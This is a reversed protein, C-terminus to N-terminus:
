QMHWVRRLAINRLRHDLKSGVERQEAASSTGVRDVFNEVMKLNYSVIHLGEVRGSPQPLEAHHDHHDDEHHDDEFVTGHLHSNYRCCLACIWDGCLVRISAGTTGGKLGDFIAFDRWQDSRTESGGIFTICGGFGFGGDMTDVHLDAGSVCPSEGSHHGRVVVQHSPLTRATARPPVSPYQCVSVWDDCESCDARVGQSCVCWEEMDPYAVLLCEAVASNLESLVPEVSASREPPSRSFPICTPEGQLIMSERGVGPLIGNGLSVYIGSAPQVASSETDRVEHEAWTRLLSIMSDTTGRKLGSVMDALAPKFWVVRALESADPAMIACSHVSEADAEEDFTVPELVLAAQSRTLVVNRAATHEMHPHRELHHVVDAGM